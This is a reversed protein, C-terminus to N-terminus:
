DKKTAKRAAYQIAIITKADIIKNRQIMDMAEDVRYWRLEIDEDEDMAKPHEVVKLAEAEYIYLKENCFGPTSYFECVKHLRETTFGSEEELERLGCLYPDEDKELKGAPIELMMADVAPRYQYVFLIRDEKMALVGVGGHHHIIDRAFQKGTEDEIIDKSVTFIRAKYTETSSIKKQM